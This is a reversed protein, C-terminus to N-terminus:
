KGPSASVTKVTLNPDAAIDAESYRIDLYKGEGYTRTQATYYPSNPNSSQGQVQIQKGVPGQPTLEVWYVYSSGSTAVWGDAGAFPATNLRQFVNGGPLAIRESGVLRYQYGRLPANLPIGASVLDNVAGFLADRM